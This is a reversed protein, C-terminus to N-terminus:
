KKVRFFMNGTASIPITAPSSTAVTTWTAGPGLVPSGELVGGVPVWSIVVNNGSRTVSLTTGPPVVAGGGANEVITLDDLAQRANEGGTRGGILFEGGSVPTYSAVPNGSVLDTPTNLSLHNFYTLGNYITSISNDSNLSIVVDVWQDNVIAAKSLPIWGIISGNLKVEFAPAEPKGGPGTNGNNYTDFDVSITGTGEEGASTVTAPINGFNFSMGDAADGSGNGIYLKFTATFNTVPAGSVLDSIIIAGQLSGAADTLQFAGSGDPGLDPVVAGTGGAVVGDPLTDSNFDLTLCPTTVPVSTGGAIVNGKTDKVNSVTVSYSKCAVLGTTHLTVISVINAGQFVERVDNSRVTVGAGLGFNGIATTQHDLPASFTLIVGNTTAVASTVTPATTGLAQPIVKVGVVDGKLTSAQLNVPDPDSALKYTAGLNDGGGGEGHVAEIYYLNGKTLHITAGAGSAGPWQSGAFSDSRKNEITSTGGISVWNRVASWGAEQAILKKNAPTDDTSLFLDSDDDGNIFFVFDGTVPPLFYGSIKNAYNDAFNYAAEFITIYGSQDAGTWYGATSPSGATGGEVSGRTQGPFYDYKVLGTILPAPFVALTAATSTLTGSAGSLNATKVVVDYNGADSLALFPITYSSSNAGSINTGNKRWQYLPTVESDTTVSVSFTAAQAEYQNINVPQTAIVSSTVPGTIYAIVGNTFASGDGDVPDADAALKFTAGLNDGGGGEHQIGEIYYKQGATLQIGGAFPVTTGGDPSWQDSRKQTAVSSPSTTWQREASWGTEQAILQKHAPSDDTSLFLDSDDDSAVFFVYKGTTAPIFYGSVRQAYNDAVNSPAQFSLLESVNSPAGVNGTEIANRDKGSFFERKLKGNVTISGTKVTVTAASSTVTKGPVTLVVDYTSGNDGPVTVFSYTTGTANTINVGGRRWQYQISFASDTTAAVSLTVPTGAFVSANAPATTINLVQAPPVSVGIVSGTLRPAAGNATIAEDDSALRYTIALNDGGGGEHHVAEYYYHTGATLHITAGAGAAGAWQSGPFQDSRKGETTSGGGPTNYSRVASWGTEQAILKKNAAKDDTSLFLDTDDDAAVYFVYDDTTPPIFIGSLRNAYNDAFNTGAEAINVYGSKDSGVVTGAFSPAPGGAEVTPRDSNPFYDYRAFGIVFPSDQVTVAAVSSTTVSPAGTAGPVSVQVDYNGGDTLGPAGISFSPGNAGVLNTGNRRWQYSVPFPSDSQVGVKLALPAGIYFTGGAPQNTITVHPAAPATDANFGIVSGRLTPASGDAPDADAALKYTVALNDGGGGEHHVAEIYYHSGATLHITGADPWQTSAFTDSRKDGATSGGGVASYSRVGSWGAEQAILKKNAATDDTSLFLDSDDDSAIFFVYDGTTPPVFEGLIRNVYNEAFNTGAEFSNVYGSKDSGQTFGATSPAGATGAEVDPRLANPYYEYTLYGPVFTAASATVATLGLAAFLRAASKLFPVKTGLGERMLSLPNCAERETTQPKDHM